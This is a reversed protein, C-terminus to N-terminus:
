IAGESGGSAGQDLRLLVVTVNDDGGAANAADVLSRAAKELDGPSALVHELIADDLVLGNLGDSCLLLIDGHKLSRTVTDVNVPEASGLARTIVNRFPHRQAEEESLIGMQVQENVWSHDRTLREIAGDRVLYARSDGVHAVVLRSGRCLAAVVTTGMGRLAERARIEQAIRENAAQIAVVLADRMAEESDPFEDPALSTALTEIALRSAVEGAAHGGMGDAVAFLGRGPDVLYADENAERRLGVDTLGQSALKM